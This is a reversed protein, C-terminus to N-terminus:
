VKPLGYPARYQKTLYANAEKDDGFTETKPNFRVDRKLVGIWVSDPGTTAKTATSWHVAVYANFLRAM